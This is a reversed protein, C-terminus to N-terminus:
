QPEAWKKHAFDFLFNVGVPSQGTGVLPKLGQGQGPVHGQVKQESRETNRRSPLPEKSPKANGNRVELKGYSM